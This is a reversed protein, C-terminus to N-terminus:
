NLIIKFFIDGVIVVYKLFSSYYMLEIKLFYVVESNVILFFDLIIKLYNELIVDKNFIDM